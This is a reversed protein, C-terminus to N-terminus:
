RSSSYLPSDLPEEGAKGRNYYFVLKDGYLSFPLHADATSAYDVLRRLSEFRIIM